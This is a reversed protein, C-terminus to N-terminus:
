ADAAGGFHPYLNTLPGPPGDERRCSNGIKITLSPAKDHPMALIRNARQLIATTFYENQDYVCVGRGDLCANRIGYNSPQM